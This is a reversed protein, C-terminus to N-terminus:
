FKESHGYMATKCGRGGVLVVLGQVVVKEYLIFLYIETKSPSLTDSESRM